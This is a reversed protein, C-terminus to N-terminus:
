TRGTALAFAEARTKPWLKHDVIDAYDPAPAWCWSDIHSKGVFAGSSHWYNNEAADAVTWGAPLESEGARRVLEFRDVHLRGVAFRLVEGLAGDYESVLAGDPQVVYEKGALFMQGLWKVCRVVDGVGFPADQKPPEATPRPASKPANVCGARHGVVFGCVCAIEGGVPQRRVSGYDTTLWNNADDGVPAHHAHQRAYGKLQRFRARSM